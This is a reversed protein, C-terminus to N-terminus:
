LVKRCKAIFREVAQPLTPMGSVEGKDYLVEAVDAATRTDDIGPKLSVYALVMDDISVTADKGGGPYEFVIAPGVLPTVVYRLPGLRM